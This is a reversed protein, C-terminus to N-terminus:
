PYDRMRAALKKFQQAAQDALQAARKSRKQGWEFQATMAKAIAADFRLAIEDPKSM